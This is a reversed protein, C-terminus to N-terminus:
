SIRAIAAFLEGLPGEYHRWRGVSTGYIPRRVQTASATRVSRRTQHFQLCDPEWELGCWAVLRRAVGELDTVTEEYAVDLVPSPLVARWHEMIREYQHFRSIIHRWDSTWRIEQFHSMWCSVAVDRLDRRCHIFKARPFLAALVGLFLYNDPMKNVIRAAAPAHARLRELHWSALERTKHADLRRLGEILESGEEGLLAMTQHVLKIEGAGFVRSHSAMIQEILTTGSRPLGVVFVPVESELGGGQVRAFFDPMSVDMLAAVLMEHEEVDYVQGRKRWEVLQLANGRALHEAAEAYEGRADLVQALGFHLLLRQADTTAADELLRRQAAIDEDPLRGGLVEALKYYGLAFRPNQRLARRFAEEAAAFDGTEEAVSGLNGFAEAFDPRLATAKRWCARAEDLRGQDKYAVGLNSHLEASDPKLELARQWCSLAEGDKGQAKLATALTSFAEAYDPKLELARRCAAVAQDLKGQETLVVALNNCALAYDPKLELARRYCAAAQDLNGQEKLAVGLNNHAAVYDPKLELARRYCVAAEALRGQEKFAVGLNNHAEALDPKLELARRLQAIAEDLRGQDKLVNGLSSHAEAYDPKLELARRYCVVAEALQGLARHAEGLNHHFVPVNEKRAIARGIYQLAAENKGAQAAVVGLLHLADAHDPDAALIQRYIQEAVALRGAQHQQLAIALAEPITPM